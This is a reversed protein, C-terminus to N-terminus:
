AIADAADPRPRQEEPSRIEVVLLPGGIHYKKEDFQHYAGHKLGFSRGGALILPYNRALHTSSTSCGYFVLTRDSTALCRFDELLHFGNPLVVVQPGSGVTQFWLRLGDSTTVYGDAPLM